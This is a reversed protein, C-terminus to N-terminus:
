RIADGLGFVPLYMAIVLTGVIGGIVVMMMPELASALSEARTLTHGEHWEALRSLMVDLAGAQEGVKILQACLPTFLSHQQLAQHLPAGGAIHQQLDTIAERWLRSTLTAEVAQLSQLLTLGAQQTLQLIAYIQSLQSGRWLPALLPLRLLWRHIRRQWDASRRYIQRAIMSFLVCTALLPLAAQQLLASLAMVGSTLTPLPADFSAYVAVFEPLVFLLMGASVAIAVLLIFLPYRLAKVVKQRLHQQGTQQQALQRCCEDLQGTLEGVQMLAPFLPPFIQPWDRLAQSFPIGTIVRQQLGKLLIRWGTDPHGEALLTLSEALPLGARLLTALQRILDIKQQWKWDRARWCKGRQWSVALMGRDSLHQLLAEQHNMLSEGSQLAGMSDLAQWRFHYLNTM